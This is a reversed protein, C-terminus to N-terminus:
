LKARYILCFIVQFEPIGAYGRVFHYCSEYRPRRIHENDNNCVFDVLEIVILPM